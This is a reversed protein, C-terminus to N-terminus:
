GINLFFPQPLSNLVEDHGNSGGNGHSQSQGRAIYGAGDGGFAFGEGTAVGGNDDLGFGNLGVVRLLQLAISEASIIGVASLVSSCPFVSSM